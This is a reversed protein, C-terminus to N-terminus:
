SKDFGLKVPPITFGKNVTDRTYRAFTYWCTGNTIGRRTSDRRRWVKSTPQKGQEVSCGSMRKDNLLDPAITRV